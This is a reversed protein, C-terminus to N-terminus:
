SFNAFVTKYNYGEFYDTLLRVYLAKKGHPSSAKGRFYDGFLNYIREKPKADNLVFKKAPVQKRDFAYFLYSLLEENTLHQKDVLGKKFHSYVDAIPVFDFKNELKTISIQGEDSVGDGDKPLGSDIAANHEAIFYDNYDLLTLYYFAALEEATAKEFTVLEFPLSTLLESKKTEEDETLDIWVLLSYKTSTLREVNINLHECCTNLVLDVYKQFAETNGDIFNLRVELLLENGFKKLQLIADYIKKREERLNDSVFSYLQGEKKLDKYESVDEEM